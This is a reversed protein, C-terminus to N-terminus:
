FKGFREFAELPLVGQRVADRVQNETAVVEEARALVQECVDAPVSVIGDADAVIWDGPSIRVGGATIPRTHGLLEWRPVCDQPTVYRSFV